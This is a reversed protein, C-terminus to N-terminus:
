AKSDARLVVKLNRAIIYGGMGAAPNFEFFSASKLLMLEIYRPKVEYDEIIFEPLKDHTYMKLALLYNQFSFPSFDWGIVDDFIMDFERSDSLTVGIVLENEKFRHEIKNICADHYDLIETM